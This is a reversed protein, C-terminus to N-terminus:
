EKRSCEKKVDIKALLALILPNLLYAMIYQAIFGAFSTVFVGFLISNNNTKYGRYSLFLYSYLIFIAYILGNLIFLQLYSSDIYNYLAGSDDGGYMVIMQGFLPIGYYSLSDQGIHLRNSLINDIVIWVLSSSDYFVVVLFSLITFFPISLVLLRRVSESIKFHIMRLFISILIMLAICCAALRADMYFAILSLVLAFFLYDIVKLKLKKLLWYSFLVHFLVIAGDTPWSFGFCHRGYNSSVGLEREVYVIKDPFFGIKSGILNIFCFSFGVLFYFKLIKQYSIHKAGFLVFPFFFISFLNDMKYGVIFSLITFLLFVLREYFRFERFVMLLSITISLLSMVKLGASLILPFSWVSVLDFSRLMGM